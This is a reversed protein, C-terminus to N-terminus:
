EGQGAKSRAKAEAARRKAARHHREREDKPQAALIDHLDDNEQPRTLDQGKKTVGLFGVCVEDTTAEGWKVLKPPRSPNRPSGASNDNHVVVHLVSGKPVGLPQEFADTNQWTRHGDISIHCPVLWSPLCWTWM